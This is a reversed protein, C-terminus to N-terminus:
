QFPELLIAKQAIGKSKEPPHLKARRCLAVTTLFPTILQSLANKPHQHLAFLILIVPLLFGLAQGDGTHAGPTLCGGDSCYCFNEWPLTSPLIKKLTVLNGGSGSHLLSGDRTMAQLNLLQLYSQPQREHIGQQNMIFKYKARHQCVGTCSDLHTHATPNM